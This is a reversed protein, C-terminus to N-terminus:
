LAKVSWEGCAQVGTNNLVAESSLISIFCSLDKIVQKLADIPIRIM